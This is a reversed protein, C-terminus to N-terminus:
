LVSFAINGDFRYLNEVKTIEFRAHYLMEQLWVVNEFAASKDMGPSTFRCRWHETCFTDPVGDPFVKVGHNTIFALEFPGSRYEILIKGLANPDRDDSNWYLFIDVGVIERKAGM